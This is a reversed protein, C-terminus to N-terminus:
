WEATFYVSVPHLLQFPLCLVERKHPMFLVKKHWLLCADLRMCVRGIFFFQLLERGFRKRENENHQDMSKARKTAGGGDEERCVQESDSRAKMKQSAATSGLQSGALHSSM